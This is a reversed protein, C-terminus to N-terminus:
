ATLREDTLQARLRAEAAGDFTAAYSEVLFTLNPMPRLRAVLRPPRM